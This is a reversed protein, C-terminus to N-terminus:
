DSNLSLADWCGTTVRSLLTLVTQAWLQGPLQGGGATCATAWPPNVRGNVGVNVHGGAGLLCMAVGMYENIVSLQFAPFIQPLTRDAM